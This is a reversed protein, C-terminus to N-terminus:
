DRGRERCEPLRVPWIIVLMVKRQLPDTQHLLWWRVGLAAMVVCAHLYWGSAPVQGYDVAGGPYAKVYQGGHPPQYQQLGAAAFPGDDAATARQPEFTDPLTKVADATAAAADASAHMLSDMGSVSGQEISSRSLRQQLRQLQKHLQLTCIHCGCVSTHPLLQPLALTRLGM